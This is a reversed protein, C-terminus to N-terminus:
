GKKLKRKIKRLVKGLGSNRFEQFIKSDRFTKKSEQGKDELIQLQELLMASFTRENVVPGDLADKLWKLSRVRESELKREVMEYDIRVSLLHDINELKLDMLLHESLETISLLTEFRSMGRKVNGFCIFNKHFIISFCLGHYSDTLVYEANKFYYLWDEVGVTKLVADDLDMMKRNEEQNEQGDLIVRLPLGVKDSVHLLVRRKEPTPNLIYALLYPKEEKADADKIANDYAAKDCLFVPDLNQVANVGFVDRCINIGDKERVSIATFQQLCKAIEFQREKPFFSHAHGFSTAYAIKRKGPQVFDLFFYNGNEKVCYYNWLQDSGLVFSECHYNMRDLEDYTYRMSMDYHRNAFRRTHTDPIANKPKEHYPWELMLVTKGLSVLTEHLAYNTLASGYNLGYWWGVFGVDFRRNIGYDVAKDFDYKDLLSYFRERRSHLRSPSHLQANNKKAFELSAKECLKMKDSIAAFLKQGQENNVLVMSTGKKDDFAANYKDVNWFDALTLDGPRPIHAYPCQGCSKRLSLLQLFSKMYSSDTRYKKYEYGDEFQITTSVTWGYTGKDRFSLYNIKGHESMKQEVFKRYTKPSPVGHCVLDITFLNQYPKGLFCYLAAVQCPCGSFLVPRNNKLITEIEKYIKGTNSQVYKSGQLRPLEKENSILIHNVETYDDSYTAGCVYGNNELVYQAALVFVGGSSSHERVSDEAYAAYCVPEELNSYKPENVPCSKLCLGCNICINKDINPFLFGEQNEKMVIADVPCRNFCAGCGTCENEKIAEITNVGM